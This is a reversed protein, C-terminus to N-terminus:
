RITTALIVDFERRMTMDQNFLVGYAKLTIVEEQTDTMHTRLVNDYKNTICKNSYYRYYYSCYNFLSCSILSNNTM